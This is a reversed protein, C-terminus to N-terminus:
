KGGKKLWLAAWEEGQRSEQIVFGKNTFFNGLNETQAGKLVGSLILSGGPALRVALEDALALLVDHIINAVVINYEGTIDALPTSAVEMQAAMGNKVANEKAAAVADPDNDIAMVRGAGFLLAGMGLIGTGCGVDLVSQGTKEALSKRLFELSFSTTDHHGTGFAMGPDMVLVKEEGQPSYEEWGPVIVLDSIVEFPKFYKKWSAGWDQEAVMEWAVEAGSTGSVGLADKLAAIHENLRALVEEQEKPSPNEVPYWATVVGYGTEGLAGTEVGANLVGVFFDSLSEVLLPDTDVTIKLWCKKEM